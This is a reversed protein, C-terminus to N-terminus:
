KWSSSITNFCINIAKFDMSSIGRGNGRNPVTQAVEVAVQITTTPDSASSRDM